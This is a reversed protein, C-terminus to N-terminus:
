DLGDEPPAQRVLGALEEFSRAIVERREASHPLWFTIASRDDDDATDHLRNSGHLYLRVASYRVGNDAEKAILQVVTEGADVDPDCLLEQSYVNIRM